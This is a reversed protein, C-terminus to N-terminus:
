EPWCARSGPRASVCYAGRVCFQLGLDHGVLVLLEVDELAELRVLLRQGVAGEVLAAVQLGREGLKM